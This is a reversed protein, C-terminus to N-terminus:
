SVEKVIKVFEKAKLSAGGVLLGQLRAEKIYDAANKSNVSGGYLIRIKKSITQNYIKSVIKRILLGMKQAEEVDCPKGTGIAWIPEYAICVRSAQFKFSSVKELAVEIQKKLVEPAEGKERQKRSEGICLIPSMKAGIVAKLKKNIMEDTEAFYNRRESHGVIVYQCGTDKLMAPSIEGTYAGEKEWFCDQAGLKINKSFQFAVRRPTERKVRDLFISFQTYPPCIVVEAKKINKVGKKVLNFLQKAEAQSVPNCKWNAVILPKM